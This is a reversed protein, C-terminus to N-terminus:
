EMGLLHGVVTAIALLLFFGGIAGGLTASLIGGRKGHRDARLGFRIATAGLVLLVIVFAAFISWAVAFSLDLDLANMTTSVAVFLVIMVLVASWSRALDASARIEPNSPPHGPVDRATRM